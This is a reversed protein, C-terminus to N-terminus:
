SVEVRKPCRGAPRCIRTSLLSGTLSIWPSSQVLAIGVEAGAAYGHREFERYEGRRFERRPYERREFERRYEGRGYEGQPGNYGETRMGGGYDRYDHASVSLTSGATIIAAAAALGIVTNRM